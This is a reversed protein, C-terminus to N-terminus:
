RRVSNYIKIDNRKNKAKYLAKDSEAALQSVIENLRKKREFGKRGSIGASFTPTRWRKEWDKRLGFSVYTNFGRLDRLRGSFIKQLSKLEKSLKDPRMAVFVKFEEGGVRAAAGNHERAFSSLLAAMENIVVDGVAHGFTDNIRKFKDLDITAMSFPKKKSACERLIKFLRYSFVGPNEIVVFKPDRSLGLRVNKRARAAKRLAKVYEAKKVFLTRLSRKKKSNNKWVRKLRELNAFTVSKVGHKAKLAELEGKHKIRLKDAERSESFIELPSMPRATKRRDGTRTRGRQLVRSM